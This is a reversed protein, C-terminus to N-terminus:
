KYCRRFKSIEKKNYKIWNKRSGFIVKRQDKKLYTKAENVAEKQFSVDMLNINNLKTKVLQEIQTQKHGELLRNFAYNRINTFQKQYKEINVTEILKLKITIM